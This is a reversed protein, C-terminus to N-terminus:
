FCLVFLAVGIFKLFFEYLTCYLKPVANALILAVHFPQALLTLASPYEGDSGLYLVVTVCCIFLHPVISLWFFLQFARRHLLLRTSYLCLMLQQFLVTLEATSDSSNKAAIRNFPTSPDASSILSPSNPNAPAATRFPVGGAGGVGGLYKNWVEPRSELDVCHFFVSRVALMVRTAWLSYLLSLLMSCAFLWCEFVLLFSDFVSNWSAFFTTTSSTLTSASFFISCVAPLDLPVVFVIPPLYARPCQRIQDDLISSIQTSNSVSSGVFSSLKFRPLFVYATLWYTLIPVLAFWLILSGATVSPRDVEDGHTLVRLFAVLRPRNQLLAWARRAALLMILQLLFFIGLAVSDFRVFWPFSLTSPSCANYAFSRISLLLAGVVPV